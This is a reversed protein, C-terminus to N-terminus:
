KNTTQKKNVQTSKIEKSLSMNKPSAHAKRQKLM